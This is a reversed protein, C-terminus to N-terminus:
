QPISDWWASAFMSESRTTSRSPPAGASASGTAASEGSPSAAYRVYGRAAADAAARRRRLRLEEAERDGLALDDEVALVPERAAACPEVGAALAQLRSPAPAGELAGKARRASENV